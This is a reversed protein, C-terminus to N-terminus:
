QNKVEEMKPKTKGKETKVKEKGAQEQKAKEKGAKEKAAKEKAAKEKAAKEKETKVKDANPQPTSKSDGRKFAANDSAKETATTSPTQAFSLGSVSLVFFAMVLVVGLKRM